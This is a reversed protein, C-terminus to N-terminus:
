ATRANQKAIEYDAYAGKVLTAFKQHYLYEKVENSHTSFYPTKALNVIDLKGTYGIYDAIDLVLEVHNKNKIFSFDIVCINDKKIQAIKIMRCYFLFCMEVYRYDDNTYFFKRLKSNIFMDNEEVLQNNIFSSVAELPDKITLIVNKDKNIENLLFSQKHRLRHPMDIEPMSNLIQDRLFRNGQRPFGDVIIQQISGTDRFQTDSENIDQDPIEIWRQSFIDYDWMGADPPDLIM